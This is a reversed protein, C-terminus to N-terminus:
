LHAVVAAPASRAIARDTVATTTPELAQNPETKRKQWRMTYSHELHEIIEFGLRTYLKLARNSAYVDLVISVGAAGCEEQLDRIVKTGIGLGQFSPLLQIQILDVHDHERVVKLLGIDSGDAQIIRACDFHVLVRQDQEEECWPRHRLVVDRMTALRLARMFDADSETASRFTIRPSTM